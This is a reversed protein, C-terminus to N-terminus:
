DINEEALRRRLKVGIRDLVRRVTWRSCGLKKACESPTYGEICMQLIEPEPPELGTVALGMEDLLTAVEVPGPDSAIVEPPFHSGDLGIEARVARRKAHHREAQKGIKHLTIKVLLQWLAGSHDFSYQGEATRRFFTRFVSQLIDDPGVRRQLQHGIQGAALNWLRQSYRAFLERAASQDGGQWRDVIDQVSEPNSM